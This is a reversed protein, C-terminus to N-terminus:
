GHSIGKLVLVASRPDTASEHAVCSFRWAKRADTLEADHARGKLFVAVGDIALHRAAFGLLQPLPALARASLVDASLPEVAEIRDSIVRVSLDLSYSVHRLFAAKRQDAEVLIVRMEPTKEKALIAVVIGPFGGGSGLDAWRRANRGHDFVQVSDIIHRSWIQDLTAKSVLNITANWKALRGAFNSLNEMTERSVDLKSLVSEGLPLSM